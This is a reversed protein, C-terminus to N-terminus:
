EATSSSAAEGGFCAAFAEAPTGVSAQALYGYFSLTDDTIESIDVDGVTVVGGKIIEVELDETVIVPTGKEDSYIYVLGNNKGTVGELLVWCDALEWTYVDKTMDECVELYLYAQVKTKGDIVMKADKPLTEGPLIEYTNGEDGTGTGTVYSGKEDTVVDHEIIKFDDALKDGAAMFTNKIGKGGNASGTLYALTGTVTAACVLAVSLVVILSKKISM